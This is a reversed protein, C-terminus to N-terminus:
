LIRVHKGAKLVENVMDMDTAAPSSVIVLEITHDHIISRTDNVIEAQPFRSKFTEQSFSGPMLAKKLHYEKLDGMREPGFSQGAGCIIFGINKTTSM